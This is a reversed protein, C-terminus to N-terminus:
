FAKRDDRVPLCAGTSSTGPGLRASIYGRLPNGNPHHCGHYMYVYLSLYIYVYICQTYIYIYRAHYIYIYACSIYIYIDHIYTYIYLRRYITMYRIMHSMGLSTSKTLIHNDLLCSPHVNWHTMSQSM